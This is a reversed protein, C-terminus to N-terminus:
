GGVEKTKWLREAGSERLYDPKWGGVDQVPSTHPAMSLLRLLGPASPHGLPLPLIANGEAELLDVHRQAGDGMLIAGPPILGNLVEGVTTAVPELLTEMGHHVMRYAAAYLRDGRADFLVLRPRLSEEELGMAAGALSSFAWFELGLAWALGKATAVGVRVGTFSGPGAGVVVGTLDAFASGVEKLLEGIRPVLLAAHEDQPRLRTSALIEMEGAEGRRALALSGEKGATDVALLLGAMSSPEATTPFGGAM